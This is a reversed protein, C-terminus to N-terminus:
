FYIGEIESNIEKIASIGQDSYIRIELKKPYVKNKISSPKFSITCGRYSYIYGKDADRKKIKFVAFPKIEKKNFYERFKYAKESNKLLYARKIEPM